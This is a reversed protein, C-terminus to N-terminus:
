KDIEKLDNETFIRFSFKYGEYGAIAYFLLEIPSFNEALASPILSYDILLLADMYSLGEANAVFGILSFVNGLLCSLIAIIAGTIGFIQNIGKGAYRLSYGVGAGIAIAMYGIQYETAVTIAAWLLAGVLGVGSSLLIGKLLSQEEKLKNLTKESVKYQIDSVEIENNPNDILAENEDKIFDNCNDIFTPKETTLSCIIGKEIDMKRNTCTQCIALQDELRM